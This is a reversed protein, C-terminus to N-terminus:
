KSHKRCFDCLRHPVDQRGVPWRCRACRATKAWEAARQVPVLKIEPNAISPRYERSNIPLFSAGDSAHRM